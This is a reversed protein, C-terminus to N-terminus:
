YRRMWVLTHMLTPLKIGAGLNFLLFDAQKAKYSDILDMTISQGEKLTKCDIVLAKGIFIFAFQFFAVLFEQNCSNWFDPLTKM